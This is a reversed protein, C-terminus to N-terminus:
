FFKGIKVIIFQLILMLILGLLIKYPKPFHIKNVNRDKRYAWILGIAFVVIFFIVFIIRGTTFMQCIYPM